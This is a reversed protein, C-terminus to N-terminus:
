LSVEHTAKVARRAFWVLWTAGKPPKGHAAALNILANRTAVPYCNIRRAHNACLWWAAACAHDTHPSTLMKAFRDVVAHCDAMAGEYDYDTYRQANRTM